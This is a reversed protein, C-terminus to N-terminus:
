EIIIDEGQLIHDLAERNTFNSSKYILYPTKKSDFFKIFYKSFREKLYVDSSDLSLDSIKYIISQSGTIFKITVHLGDDHLELKRVIRSLFLEIGAIYSTYLLLPTIMDWQWGFAVLIGGNMVAGGGTSVIRLKYLDIENVLECRKNIFKLEELPKFAFNRYLKLLM